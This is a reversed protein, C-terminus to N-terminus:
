RAGGVLAQMESVTPAVEPERAAVCLRVPPVSRLAQRGRRLASPDFDEDGVGLARAVKADRDPSALLERLEDRLAENTTAAVREYTWRLTDTITALEHEMAALEDRAARRALSRRELVELRRDLAERVMGPADGALRARQARVFDVDTGGSADLINAAGRHAIAIRVYLELLREVNACGEVSAGCREVISTALAELSVLEQRHSESLRLLLAERAETARVRAGEALSQDVARRVWPMRPLAAVAIVEMLACAVLTAGVGYSALGFTVLIAVAIGHAPHLFVHRRYGAPSLKDRTTGSRVTM